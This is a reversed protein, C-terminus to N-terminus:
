QKLSIEKHKLFIKKSKFKQNIKKFYIFLFVFLRPTWFQTILYQPPVEITAKEVQFWYLNQLRQKM